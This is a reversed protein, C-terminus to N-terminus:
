HRLGPLLHNVSWDRLFRRVFARVDRASGAAAACQFNPALGDFAGSPLGWERAIDIFAGRAIADFHVPEPEPVLIIRFRSLLAKPIPRLDNATACFMLKSLDCPVQLYTDYWRASNEPELLNLLAVTPPVSRMSSQGVKDIEDLLVLASARRRELILNVLPSAQGTSWGRATGLLAMSDNMGALSLPMFPIDLVDALRRALRSKGCGPQGVLLTPPMGIQAGGFLSRSRLDSAFEEVAETAWPFEKTLQVAAAECDMLNPLRGVPLPQQLPTYRNLSEQDESSSAPPIDGRIVVVELGLAHSHVNTTAVNEAPLEQAGARGKLRRWFVQQAQKGFEADFSEDESPPFREILSDWLSLGIESFFNLRDKHSSRLDFDNNLVFLRLMRVAAMVDQAPLSELVSTSMTLLSSVARSWVAIATRAQVKAEVARAKREVTTLNPLSVDLGWTTPEIRVGNQALHALALQEFIAPSPLEDAVHSLVEIQFSPADPIQFRGSGLLGIELASERRVESPSTPDVAALVVREIRKLHEPAGAGYPMLQLLPHRFARPRFLEVKQVSEM